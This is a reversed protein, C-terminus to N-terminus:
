VFCLPLHIIFPNLTPIEQTCHVYGEHIIPEMASIVSSASKDSIYAPSVFRSALHHILPMQIINILSWCRHHIDLNLCSYSMAHLSCRLCEQKWIGQLPPFLNTLYCSSVYRVLTWCTDALMPSDQSQRKTCNLMVYKQERSPVITHWADNCQLWLCGHGCVIGTGLHNFATFIYKTLLFPFSVIFESICM